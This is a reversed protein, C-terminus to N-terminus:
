FIIKLVLSDNFGKDRMEQPDYINRGDVINPEALMQKAQRVKLVDNIQRIKVALKAETIPPKSAAGVSRGELMVPLGAVAAAAHMEDTGNRVAVPIM